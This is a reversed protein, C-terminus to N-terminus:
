AERHIPRFVRFEKGDSKIASKLLLMGIKLRDPERLRHEEIDPSTSKVEGRVYITGGRMGRGLHLGAGAGIVLTGAQMGLAGFDGVSGRVVVDAGQMGIAVRDGVNGYVAVMGGTGLACLADKAGQQVILIGSHLSHGFFHNVNGAVLGDGEGFSCFGFDGLSGQVTVNCFERIGCCLYDQGDAGSIRIISDDPKMGDAIKGSAGRLHEEIARRLDAPRSTKADLHLAVAASSQMFNWHKAYYFRLM